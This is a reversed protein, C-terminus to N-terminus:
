APSASPARCLDRCTGPVPTGAPWNGGPSECTKRPWSSPTSTRPTSWAWCGDASCRRPQPSWRRRRSRPPPPHPQEAPPRSSGAGGPGTVSNGGEGDGTVSGGGGQWAAPVPAVRGRGGGGHGSGPYGGVYGAGTFPIGQGDAAGRSRYADRGTGPERPPFAPRPRSGTVGPGGAPLVRTGPPVRGAAECSPSRSRNGPPPPPPTNSVPLRAESGPALDRRVRGRPTM